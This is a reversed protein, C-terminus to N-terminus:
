ENNHRVLKWDGKVSEGDGLNETYSIELKEEDILNVYLGMSEGPMTPDTLTIVDDAYTWSLLYLDGDGYDVVLTGDDRYNHMLGVQDDYIVEDSVGDIFYEEVSSVVMWEGILLEEPDKQCSSFMLMSAAMLVFTKFLNLRKM